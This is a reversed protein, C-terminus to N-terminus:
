ESCPAFDEASDLCILGLVLVQGNAQLALAVVPLDLLLVLRLGERLREVRVVGLLLDVLVLAARAATAMVAADRNLGGALLGEVPLVRLRLGLGLLDLRLVLTQGHAELALPVSTLQPLGVGREGGGERAVEVLELLLELL